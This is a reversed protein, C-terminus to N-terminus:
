LYGETGPLPSQAQKAARSLVTRVYATDVALGHQALHHAIDAASADPHLTSSAALIAASKTVPAPSDQLTGVQPADASAEHRMVPRPSTKTFRSSMEGVLDPTVHIGVRALQAVVDLPRADPMTELAAEVAARDDRSADEATTIVTTQGQPIGALARSLQRRIAVMALQAAVQASKHEVWKQSRADLRKASLHMAIVWMGKALAPVLAGVLGVKLSGHLQGNLTIAAMAVLLALHGAWRPLRAKSPDYRALWEAAMCIIWAADFLSAAGYAIAQEVTRALLAGISATSWAVSALVALIAILFVGALVIRDWDRPIRPQVADPDEIMVTDGNITHPILPVERATKM